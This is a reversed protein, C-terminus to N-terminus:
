LDYFDGFVNRQDICSGGCQAACEAISFDVIQRQIAAIVLVQQLQTRAYNTIGASSEGGGAGVPKAGFVVSVQNVTQVIGLGERSLADDVAGSNYYVGGGNQRNVGNLFKIQLLVRRSFIAPFWSRDDIYSQFRPGFSQGPGRECKATVACHVRAIKKILRRGRFHIAAQLLKTSTQAPC